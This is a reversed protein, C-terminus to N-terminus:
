YTGYFADFVSDATVTYTRADEFEISVRNAYHPIPQRETLEVKCKVPKSIVYPKMEGIRSIADHVANKLVEEAKHSPLLATTMLGLSEKVCALTAWPLLKGAEACVKDDGSVMIVPIGMDGLIGADLAVEGSKEGNLWLNQIRVSSMTHELLAEAAGAMAHYGLLIVGDANEIEKRYYRTRVAGTICLDVDSSLKEWIINTGSGHGDQVVVEDVGEEKLFRAIRNIERTLLERGEGYASRGSVLQESTNIGSIGEMDTMVYIKMKIVGKKLIIVCKKSKKLKM